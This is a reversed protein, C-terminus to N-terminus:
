FEAHFDIRESIKVDAQVSRNIRHLGLIIQTMASTHFKFITGYKCLKNM